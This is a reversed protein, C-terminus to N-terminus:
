VRFTDLTEKVFLEETELQRRSLGQERAYRLFTEITQRNREVGYPWFDEGMLERTEEMYNGAWPLISHISDNKFASEICITKAELLAKFLSQAVWRHRRYLEERIVMVHMIPFIGTRRFYDAEAQRPNDYLRRIQAMGKVYPRPVQASLLADVKGAVLMASLNEGEPINEVTIERPLQLPIKEKRGWTELGGTFWRVNTLAVGHEDQLIGRLWVTATMQWEPVGVRKGTLDEPRTIGSNINIYAASHRFKRYVFAPIAVFPFDGRARGAVYSGLSMEAADFESHIGMRWHVEPPKDISVFNIEMGEARVKGDRLPRVLDYNGCGLDIELTTM